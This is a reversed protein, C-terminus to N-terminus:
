GRGLRRGRCMGGAVRHTAGWPGCGLPGLTQLVGQVSETLAFLGDPAQLQLDPVQAFQQLAAGGLGGHLVLRPRPRLPGPIRGLPVAIGRPEALVRGRGGHAAVQRALEPIRRGSTVAPDVQAADRIGRPRGQQRVPRHPQGVAHLEQGRPDHLQRLAAALQRVAPQLPGVARECGGRWVAREDELVATQQVGVRVHQQRAAHDEGGGSGQPQHVAGRPEGVAGDQGRPSRQRLVQEGAERGRGIRLIRRDRLGPRPGRDRRRVLQRPRASAGRDGALGRQGPRRGGTGDLCCGRLAPPLILQLQGDLHLGTLSAM